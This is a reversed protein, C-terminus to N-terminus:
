SKSVCVGVVELSGGVVVAEKKWTENWYEMVVKRWKERCKIGQEIKRGANANADDLSKGHCEQGAIGEKLLSDGQM